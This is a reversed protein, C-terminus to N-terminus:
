SRACLSRSRSPASWSPIPGDNASGLAMESSVSRMGRLRPGLWAHMYGELCKMWLVISASLHTETKQATAYLMEATRLSKALPEFGRAGLLRLWAPFLETIADDTSMGGARLPRTSELARVKLALLPEYVDHEPGIRDLARDIAMLM